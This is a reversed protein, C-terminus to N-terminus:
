VLQAFAALHMYPLMCSRDYSDIIVDNSAAAACTPHHLSWTVYPATCPASVSLTIGDAHIIYDSEVLDDLLDLKQEKLADDYKKAASAIGSM